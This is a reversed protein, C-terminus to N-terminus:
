FIGWALPEHASAAHRLIMSNFMHVVSQQKPTFELIGLHKWLNYSGKGFCFANAAYMPGAAITKVVNRLSWLGITMCCAPCCWDRQTINHWMVYCLKVSAVWSSMSCCQHLVYSFKICNKKFVTCLVFAAQWFHPSPCLIQQLSFSEYNFPVIWIYVAIGCYYIQGFWHFQDTFWEKKLPLFGTLSLMVGTVAALCFTRRSNVINYIYQKTICLPEKRPGQAVRRRQHKMLCSETHFVWRVMHFSFLLHPNKELTFFLISKFKAMAPPPPTSPFCFLKHKFLLLVQHQQQQKLSQGQRLVSM